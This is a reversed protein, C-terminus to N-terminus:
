KDEKDKKANRNESILATVLLIVGLTFWLCGIVTDLSRAWFGILCGGWAACSNRFFKKM